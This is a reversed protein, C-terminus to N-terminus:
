GDVHAGASQAVACGSLVWTVAGLWGREGKAAWIETTRWNLASVLGRTIWSMTKQASIPMTSATGPTGESAWTPSAASAQKPIQSTAAAAAAKLQMTSCRMSALIFRVEHRGVARPSNLLVCVRSNEAMKPTAPEHMRNKQTLGSVM